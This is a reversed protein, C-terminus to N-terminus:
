TPLKPCVGKPPVIQQTRNQQELGAVIGEREDDTGQLRSLDWVDVFFRRRIRLENGSTLQSPSREPMAPTVQAIKLGQRAVRMLQALTPVALEGKAQLRDLFGNRARLPILSVVHAGRAFAYEISRCAWEEIEDGGLWPLGLLLFVRVRINAALLQEVARDFDDLTLQKNLRPLVQPHITELGLAVEFATGLDSAFRLLRAGCLRPHNEVIVTDFRQVREIIAPYDAVPIAAPDFFNGSNYLKVHRVPPQGAPPLLEALAVDIQRPIEGVPVMETTTHQWLDCFVCHFPCERNTLFLTAVRDLTGGASLEPEVFAAYPRGLTVAQRPPRLRLVEATVPDRSGAMSVMVVM